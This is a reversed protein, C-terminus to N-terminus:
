AYRESKCYLCNLCFLLAWVINCYSLYPYIMSNYRMLLINRPFINKVRNIAGLGKAIKLASVIACELCMSHIHLKWNLKTDVIVGLFKTSYVGELANTDMNISFGNYSTVLHKNGFLMYNTKKLNLSLRNAKFWDSM